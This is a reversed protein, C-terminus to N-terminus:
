LPLLLALVSTVLVCVLMKRHSPRRGSDGSVKTESFEGCALCAQSSDCVFLDHRGLSAPTELKCSEDDTSMFAICRKVKEGSQFDTSNYSYSCCRACLGGAGSDCGTRVMTNQRAGTQGEMGVSVQGVYCSRDASCAHLLLGALVVVRRRDSWVNAMEGIKKKIGGDGWLM